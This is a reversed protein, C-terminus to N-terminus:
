DLDDKVGFYSIFIILAILEFFAATPVELWIELASMALLWFTAFITLHTLYKM